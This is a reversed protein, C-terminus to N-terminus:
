TEVGAPSKEIEDMARRRGHQLEENGLDHALGAQYTTLAKDYLRTDDV